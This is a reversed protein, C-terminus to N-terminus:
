AAKTAKTKAWAVRLYDQFQGSQIIQEVKILALKTAEKENKNGHTMFIKKSFFLLTLYQAENIEEEEDEFIFNEIAKIVKKFM